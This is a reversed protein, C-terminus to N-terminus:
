PRDADRAPCSESAKRRCASSRRHTGPWRSPRFAPYASAAPRRTHPAALAALLSALALLAWEGLTPISAPTAAVPAALRSALHVSTNNTADPDAVASAIAVTHTVSGGGASVSAVVTVTGTAGATLTGVALSLANSSTTLTGISSQAGLMVLGGAALNDTLSVATAPILGANTFSISYSITTGVPAAASSATQSLQLDTEVVPPLAAGPGDARSASADPNVSFCSDADVTVAVSNCFLNKFVTSSGTFVRVMDLRDATAHAGGPTYWRQVLFDINTVAGTADTTVDARRFRLQPDALDYTTQGDTFHLDTILPRISQAALNPPLPASTTFTGSLRMTGNFNGCAGIGCPATFNVVSTYTGGTYSYTAAQAASGALALLGGALACLFRTLAM